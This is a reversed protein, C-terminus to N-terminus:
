VLRFSAIRGFRACIRRIRLPDADGDIDLPLGRVYLNNGGARDDEKGEEALGLTSASLQAKQSTTLQSLDPKVPKKVVQQTSPRVTLAMDSTAIRVQDLLVAQLALEESKFTIEARTKISSNGSKKLAQQPIIVCSIINTGKEDFLEKLEAAKWDLPYNIVTVTQM